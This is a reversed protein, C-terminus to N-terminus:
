RIELLRFDRLDSLQDSPIVEVVAVVVKAQSALLQQSM